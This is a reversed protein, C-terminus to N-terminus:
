NWLLLKLTESQTETGEYNQALTLVYQLFSLFFSLFAVLEFDREGGEKEGSCYVVYCTAQPWSLSTQSTEDRVFERMRVGVFVGKILKESKTVNRFYNSIYFFPPEVRKLCVYKCESHRM